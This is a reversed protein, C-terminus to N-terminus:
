RRLGLVEALVALVFVAVCVFTVNRAQRLAGAAEDADRTRVRFRHRRPARADDDSDDDAGPPARDEAHLKKKYRQLLRLLGRQGSETATLPFAERAEKITLFAPADRELAEIWADVEPLWPAGLERALRVVALFDARADHGVPQGFGAVRVAGDSQLRIDDASLQGHVLKDGLAATLADLVTIMVNTAQDLAIKPRRGIPPALVASLPVGEVLDTVAYPRQGSHTKAVAIDRTAVITPHGRKALKLGAKARAIFADSAGPDAALPAHLIEVGVAEGPRGEPLAEYLTARENAGLVRVLRWPGIATFEGSPRADASAQGSHFAARVLTQM